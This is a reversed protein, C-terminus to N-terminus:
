DDAFNGVPVALVRGIDKFKDAAEKARDMSEPYGDTLIILVSQAYKRGRRAFEAKSYDIAINTLTGRKDNEFAEIATKVSPLDMTLKSIWQTGCDSHYPWEKKPAWGM